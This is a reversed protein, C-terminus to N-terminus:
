RWGSTDWLVVNQATYSQAEGQRTLWSVHLNTWGMFNMDGKPSRSKRHQVFWTETWVPCYIINYRMYNIHHIFFIIPKSFDRPPPPLFITTDGQWTERCQLPWPQSTITCTKSAVEWKQLIFPWLICFSAPYYTSRQSKTYYLILHGTQLSVQLNTGDMFILDEDPSVFKELHFM